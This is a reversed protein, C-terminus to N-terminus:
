GEGEGRVSHDKELVVQITILDPKVREQSGAAWQLFGLSKLSRGKAEPGGLGGARVM